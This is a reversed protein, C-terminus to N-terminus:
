PQRRSVSVLGAVAGGSALTLWGVLVFAQALGVTDALWGTLVAGAAYGLDRWFRYAGVAAARQVPVVADAVASLLTPYVLATGVGLLMGAGIWITAGPSWGIGWLAVSQLGMGAVIPWIRGVRDSLPGTLLQLMACTIPYISAVVGIQALSAGRAALLLPLGGWVFADNLNNILGAQTFALLRTNLVSTTLTAGLSRVVAPRGDDATVYSQTERVFLWALGLGLLSVAVGLFFPVPRLGYAAALVTSTFAAAGVALYGAWENLGTVLGHESPGGLDIKMTVTMSWTLGQNVGLLVNAAIVWSWTPAWMLLWPVPLGAIWGALLLPRRGWRESFYGAVLNTLAKTVGFSIIFALVAQRSVLGFLGTGMLPVIAREQGVMAGVFANQLVLLLIQSRNARFGLLLPADARIPRLRSLAM